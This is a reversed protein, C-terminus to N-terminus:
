NLRSGVPDPRYLRPNKHGFEFRRVINTGFRGLSCGPFNRIRDSGHPFSLSACSIVTPWEPMVSQFPDSQQVSQFPDPQQARVSTTLQSLGASAVITAAFARTFHRTTASWIAHAREAGRTSWSKAFDPDPPRGGHDQTSEPGSAVRAVM